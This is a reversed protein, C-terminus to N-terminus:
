YRNATLLQREHRRSSGEGVSGGSRPAGSAPCLPCGDYGDQTWAFGSGPLRQFRTRGRQHCLHPAFRPAPSRCDRGGPAAGCGGAERMPRRLVELAWRTRAGCLDHISAAGQRDAGTRAPRKRSTAPGACPKCTTSTTSRAAGTCRSSTTPRTATSAAPGAASVTGSWSAAPRDNRPAIDRM